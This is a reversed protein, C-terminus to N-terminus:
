TILDNKRSALFFFQYHLNANDNATGHPSKLDNDDMSAGDSGIGSQAAIYAQPYEKTHMYFRAKLTYAVQTWAVPDGDFYIETSVPPRGTGSSFNIIAEDLLNQIKNYIEVQNEFQPNDADLSGAEDFPIDGWLSTASGLALARIVQTIGLTIGSVGEALALEETVQANRVISNFVNRWQSDFDRAVVTYNTYGLHQREIGTFQGAFIGARRTAEGTQLVISAVESATLAYQYPAATPNNPNQNLDDVLNGCSLFLGTLITAIIVKKM